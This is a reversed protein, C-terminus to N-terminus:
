SALPSPSPTTLYSRVLSWPSRAVMHLCSSRLGYKCQMLVTLVLTALHNRAQMGQQHPVQPSTALISPILPIVQLRTLSIEAVDEATVPFM